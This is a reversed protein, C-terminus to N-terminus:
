LKLEKLQQVPNVSVAGAEELAAALARKTSAGQGREAKAVAIAEAQSPSIKTAQDIEEATLYQSLVPRAKAADLERRNVTVIGLKRGGGISLDGHELIDARLTDRFDGCAKEILKARGYMEGIVPGLAERTDADWAIVKMDDRQLDAIASRVLARRGPCEARRPCYACHGGPNFNGRGNRIRKGFEEAWDRLHAVSLREVDWVGQRLWCVILVIEEVSGLKQAAGLAYGRLQHVYDSDLRGSKYDLVLGTRGSRGLLDATGPAIVGPALEAALPVEVQLVDQADLYKSLESLARRVQACLMQLENEDCGHERALAGIDLEEGRKFAAAWRHCATGAEAPEGSENLVVEDPQINQSEPCAWFLPLASCRVRTAAPAATITTM